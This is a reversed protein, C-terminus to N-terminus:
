TDVMLPPLFRERRGEEKREISSSTTTKIIINNNYLNMNLTIQSQNCLPVSFIDFLILIGNGGAGGLRDNFIRPFVRTRLIDNFPLSNEIIKKQCDQQQQQRQQQHHQLQEHNKQKTGSFRGKVTKPRKGKFDFQGIIHVQTVGTHFESIVKAINVFMMKVDLLKASGLEFCLGLDM